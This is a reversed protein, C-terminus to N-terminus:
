LLLELCCFIVQFGRIFGLDFTVVLLMFVTLFRFWLIDIWRLFYTLLLKMGFSLSCRGLCEFSVWALPVGNKRHWKEIHFRVQFNSWYSKSHPAQPHPALKTCYNETTLSIHINSLKNTININFYQHIRYKNNEFWGSLWNETLRSPLHAIMYQSYVLSWSTLPLTLTTWSSDTTLQFWWIGM